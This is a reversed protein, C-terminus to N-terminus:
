PLRWPGLGLVIKGGASFELCRAISLCVLSLPHPEAQEITEKRRCALTFAVAEAGPGRRKLHGGLAQLEFPLLSVM